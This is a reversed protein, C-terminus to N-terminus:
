REPTYTTDSEIWKTTSGNEPFIMYDGEAEVGQYQTLDPLEEDEVLEEVNTMDVRYNAELDM